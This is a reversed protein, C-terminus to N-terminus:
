ELKQLVMYGSTNLSARDIDIILFYFATTDLLELFKFDFQLVTTSSSNVVPFIDDILADDSGSNLQYMFVPLDFDSEQGVIRLNFQVDWIGSTLQFVSNNAPGLTNERVDVDAAEATTLFNVETTGAGFYAEHLTSDFTYITSQNAQPTIVREPGRRSTQGFGYYIWTPPGGAWEAHHDYAQKWRRGTIVGPTDSTASQIQSETVTPRTEALWRSATSDYTITLVQGTRLDGPQVNSGDVHRLPRLALSDPEGAEGVRVQITGSSTSGVTLRFKYALGQTYSAPVPDPRM